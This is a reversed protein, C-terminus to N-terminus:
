TREAGVHSRCLQRGARDTRCCPNRDGCLALVSRPSCALADDASSAKPPMETTHPPIAALDARWWTEFIVAGDGPRSSSLRKGIVETEAHLTDGHFVPAPFTVEFGPNAVTTEHTLQGVGLGVLTSLTFLSNTLRRGFEGDAGAHADRHPSPPNMTLTSFLTNDGEGVTRGPSHVYCAGHEVEKFYLGHQAIRARAM